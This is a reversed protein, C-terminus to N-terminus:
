RLQPREQHSASMEHVRGDPQSPAYAWRRVGPGSEQAQALSTFWPEVAALVGMFSSAKLFKRRWRGRAFLYDGFIGQDVHDM